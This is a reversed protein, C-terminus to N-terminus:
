SMLHENLSSHREHVFEASMMSMNAWSVERGLKM